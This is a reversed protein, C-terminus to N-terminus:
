IEPQVRNTKEGDPGMLGTGGRGAISSPFTALYKTEASAAKRRM